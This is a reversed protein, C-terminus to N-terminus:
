AESAGVEPSTSRRSIKTMVRCPRAIARITGSACRRCASTSVAIAFMFANRCRVPVIVTSPSTQGLCSAGDRNKNSNVPADEPSM